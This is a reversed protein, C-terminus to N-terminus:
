SFNEATKSNTVSERSYGKGNTKNSAPLPWISLSLDSCAVNSSRPRMGDVMKVKLQCGSTASSTSDWNLLKCVDSLSFGGYRFCSRNFHANCSLDQNLLIISM